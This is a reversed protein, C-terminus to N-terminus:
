YFIEDIVLYNLAVHTACVALVRLIWLYSLICPNIIIIVAKPSERLVRETGPVRMTENLKGMSWM